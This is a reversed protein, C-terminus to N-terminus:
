TSGERRSSSRVDLVLFAFLCQKWTEKNITTSYDQKQQQKESCLRTCTPTEPPITILSYHYNTIITPPYSLISFFTCKTKPICSKSNNNHTVFWTLRPWCNRFTYHQSLFERSKLKMIKYNLPIWLSCINELAMVGPHFYMWM